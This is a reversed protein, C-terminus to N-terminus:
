FTQGLACLLGPSFLLFHQNGTNGAEWARYSLPPPSFACAFFVLGHWDAVHQGPGFSNAEQYGKGGYISM